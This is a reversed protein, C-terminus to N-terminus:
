EDFGAENVCHICVESDAERRDEVRRLKECCVCRFVEARTAYRNLSFGVVRRHSRERETARKLPDPVEDKTLHNPTM